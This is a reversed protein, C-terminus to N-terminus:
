LVDRDVRGIMAPEVLVKGTGVIAIAEGAAEALLVIDAAVSKAVIAEAGAINTDALQLRSDNRVHKPIGNPRVIGATPTLKLASLRPRSGPLVVPPEPVVVAM